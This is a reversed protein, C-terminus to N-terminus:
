SSELAPMGPQPTIKFAHACAHPVQEPLTITIRGSERRFDLPKDKGLLFVTTESACELSELTVEGGGLADLVVAYLADGKQTFRIDKGDATSGTATIWPRTDYIADGNVALWKGLEILRERQVEPITGDAMPGVNILLNGNKSVIDVFSHILEENTLLNDDPENRNYGFSTGLGRCAEWKRKRIRDFVVYEPTVYDYHIGAADVQNKALKAHFWAALNIIAGLIANESITKQSWRDNILGEPVAEYYESFLQVLDVNEPYRIDNWLISPKYRDILERMHNNSYAVYEPQQPTNILFKYPDSIPTTNFTWDLGGSYYLGMKLGKARVAATVEGVFDRESHMGARNPNKHETPWLTYGDHHKTVMVSYRAGAKEFLDAWSEANMRASEEVFQPIFDFYSFEEGYTEVHHRHSPSGKIRMTNLYWEAYPNHALQYKYGKRKIIKQFDEGYPAWAPVSFVGWHIFIGLKANDYWEPRPRAKLDELTATPSM